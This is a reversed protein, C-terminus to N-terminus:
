PPGSLHRMQTLRGMVAVIAREIRNRENEYKEDSIFGKGYAVELEELETLLEDRRQLLRDQSLKLPDVEL